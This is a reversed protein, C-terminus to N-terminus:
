VLMMCLNNKEAYDPKINTPTPRLYTHTKTNTKFPDAVRGKVWRRSLYVGSGGAQDQVPNHLCFFIFPHIWCPKVWKRTQVLITLCFKKNLHQLSMLHKLQNPFSEVLCVTSVYMECLSVFLFFVFLNM